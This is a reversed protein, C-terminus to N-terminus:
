RVTLRTESRVDPQDFAVNLRKGEWTWGSLAKGDLMVESPRNECYMEICYKRSQPMGKFEGVTPNIVFEVAGESEHCDYRTASLKGEEYGYSIGDDEYMTYESEGCPFVMLTLTDPIEDCIYQQNRYNPIIAGDKVFLLGARNDPIVFKATSATGHVKEGTWFNIWGGEPLYVEDSFVGVLLSEGFMYQYVMDDVNRDDPFALPMSQLIPNGFQSCKLAASYIYPILDYRLRIYDAFMAKKRPSLYWPQYLSFWSNIQLWPLFAGMHLSAMEDDAHMVDCSTNMFGCFNLNLQDFLATRSGGNDGSQCASWHQTGAYGACYHHFSRKGTHNRFTQEMQKPMLVQNLNHMENDTYGNYYERDTHENLTRGPDLKFGDVGQDIFKTLHDFWHEQGSQPRGERAAIADEEAISQDFEICLWLALKYGLQHLRGIFLNECETKPYRNEAWYPEGPFLNYNWNKQTSFDYYKSMWQPEIWFIDCPISEDRFRVADNMFEFMDELMNPGFALGYAYKPLVYTKGTVTTYMNIVDTMSDGEFLYFDAGSTTNYINMRDKDTAGIDFYNRVTTNNLVGWNGSSLLFPIPIETKQYTAFMRLIEGRHQIHERSTSGGGYFREDDKLSLSIISNKSFDGADPIDLSVFKEHGPDGIIGGALNYGKFRRNLEEGLSTVLPADSDLYRVEEVITRGDASVMSLTGDKKDIVLSCRPSSVTAKRSNERISGGKFNWDTKLIGYREMLSEPFADQATIKIRFIQPSCVQVQMHNGNRLQIDYVQASACISAALLVLSLFLAKKM